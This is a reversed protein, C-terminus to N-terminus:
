IMLTHIFFFVNSEILVYGQYTDPKYYLSGALHATRIQKASCHLTLLINQGCYFSWYKGAWYSSCFLCPMGLWFILSIEFVTKVLCIQLVWRGRLFYLHSVLCDPWIFRRIFCWYSKSCLTCVVIFIKKNFAQITEWYNQM